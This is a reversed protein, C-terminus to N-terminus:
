VNKRHSLCIKIMEIYSKIDVIFNTTLIIVKLSVKVYVLEATTELHFCKVETLKLVTNSYCIKQLQHLTLSPLTTRVLLM